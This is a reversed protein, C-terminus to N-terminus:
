WRTDYFSLSHSCPSSVLCVPASLSSTGASEGFLALRTPVFGLGGNLVWKYVGVIQHLSNPYQTEPALGYDIWTCFFLHAEGLRSCQSSIILSTGVYVIVAGLKQAWATLNLYDKAIFRGFFGGGHVYFLVPKSTPLGCSIMPATLPASAGDWSGARVSALPRASFLIIGVDSAHLRKRTSGSGDLRVFHEELVPITPCQLKTVFKILRSEGFLRWGMRIVEVSPSDILIRTTFRMTHRSRVAYFPIALMLLTPGFLKLLTKNKRGLVAHAFASSAILVSTGAKFATLGMPESSRDHYEFPLPVREVLLSTANKLDDDIDSEMPSDILLRHDSGNTLPRARQLVHQCLLFLRLAMLVRAHHIKIRRLNSFRYHFRNYYDLAVVAVVGYQVVQTSPFVQRLFDRFSTRKAFRKYVLFALSLVAFSSLSWRKEWTPDYSSQLEELVQRTENLSKTAHRLLSAVGGCLITFREDRPILPIIDKLATKTRFDIPPMKAYSKSAMIIEEKIFTYLVRELSAVTLSLHQLERGMRGFAYERIIRRLVQICSLVSTCANLLTEYGHVRLEMDDPSEDTGIAGLPGQPNLCHEIFGYLQVSSQSRLNTQFSTPSLPQPALADARRPSSTKDSTDDM